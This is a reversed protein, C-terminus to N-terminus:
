TDLSNSADLQLRTCNNNYRAVGMYNVGGCHLMATNNGFQFAVTVGGAHGDIYLNESDGDFLDVM